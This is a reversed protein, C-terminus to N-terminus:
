AFRDTKWEVRGEDLLREFTRMCCTTDRETIFVVLPQIERAVKVVLLTSWGQYKISTGRYTLGLESLVNVMRYFWWAWIRVDERPLVGELSLAELERSLEEPFTIKTM